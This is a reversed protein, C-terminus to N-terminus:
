VDNNVEKHTGSAIQDCKNLLLLNNIKEEGWTKKAKEVGKKDWFFPAMHFNIYFLCDIIDEIKNFGLTDLNQLFKYAGVNHHSYYRCEGSGDDKLEQTFKKGIDHVLSAILLPADKTHKCMERYCMRCHTGLDYLHHSNKQDFGDMVRLCNQINPVEEAKKSWAYGFNPLTSLDQFVIQAQLTNKKGWNDLIIKDFGEEYTPIEFRKAQKDIVEEPVVREQTSNWQKCLRIPTTMVYAVISYKSKGKKNVSNLLGRRNKVSVNTADVVFNEEAEVCDKIRRHLIKFVEDNHTQDDVTYFEARIGDSSLVKYGLERFEDAKTSKGSGVLGIMIIANLEKM